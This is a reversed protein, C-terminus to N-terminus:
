NEGQINEDDKPISDLFVFLFYFHQLNEEKKSIINDGPKMFDDPVRM